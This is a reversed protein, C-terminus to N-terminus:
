NGREAGAARLADQARDSWAYDLATKGKSDKANIEAHGAILAELIAFAAGSYTTESAAYMLATHGELDRSNVDAGNRILSQAALYNKGKIISRVLPTHGEDDKLDIVKKGGISLLYDMWQDATEFPGQTALAEIVTRGHEDPLFQPPDAQVMIKLAQFLTDHRSRHQSFDFGYGNLFAKYGDEKEGGLYRAFKAGHQALLRMEKLSTEPDKWPLAYLTNWIAQGESANPDAGAKFLLEAMATAPEYYSYPGLAEILAASPSMGKELFVQTMEVATKLNEPTSLNRSLVRVPTGYGGTKEQLPNAGFEVLVRAMQVAGETSNSAVEHLATNGNEDPQNPDVGQELVWRLRQLLRGYSYRAFAHLPTKGTKRLFTKKAGKALFYNPGDLTACWADDRVTVEFANWGQANTAELDAGHALLFDAAKVGWANPSGRDNDCSYFPVFNLPRVREDYQSGNTRNADVGAVVLSELIAFKRTALSSDEDSLSNVVHSLFSEGTLAPCNENLSIGSEILRDVAARDGTSVAKKFGESQESTCPAAFVSSIFFFMLNASIFLKM